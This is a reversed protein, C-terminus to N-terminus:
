KNKFFGLVLNEGETTMISEPHFQMGEIPLKVHRFGMLVGDQTWSSAQLEMPLSTKEVILSHYRTARFPNPTDKYIGSQEHFIDSVKGHMIKEAPVVKAGFFEAIIQHGLCVGLIPKTKYFEKVLDRCIGSQSPNGPGPSILFGDYNKEKLQSVTVQDNKFVDVSINHKLLIQVLNYTFSDYNDIVCIM